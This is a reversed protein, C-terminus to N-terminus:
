GEDNDKRLRDGFLAWAPHSIFRASPVIDEASFLAEDESGKYREKPLCEEDGVAVESVRKM